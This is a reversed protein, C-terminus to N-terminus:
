LIRWFTKRPNTWRQSNLAIKEGCRHNAHGFMKKLSANLRMVIINVEAVSMHATSKTPRKQHHNGAACIYFPASNEIEFPSRLEVNTSKDSESM